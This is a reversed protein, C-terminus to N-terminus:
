VCVCVCSYLTAVPQIEAYDLLVITCRTKRSEFQRISVGCYCVGAALCLICIQISRTLTAM